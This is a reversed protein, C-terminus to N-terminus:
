TGPPHVNRTETWDVIADRQAIKWSRRRDRRYRDQYRMVMVYSTSGGDPDVKLHHAQCYVEGTAEEADIEYLGQGLVHFTRAYRRRLVGPVEALEAHGTRDTVPSDRDPLRYVRLRADPLFVAAFTEGDGRDAATASLAALRRLALEDTPDGGSPM